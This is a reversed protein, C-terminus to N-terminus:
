SIHSGVCALDRDQPVQASVLDDRRLLERRAVEQLRVRGAGIEALGEGETRRGGVGVGVVGEDPVPDVGDLVRLQVRGEQALKDGGHSLDLRASLGAQLALRLALDSFGDPPCADTKKRTCPPEKVESIVEEPVSHADRHLVRFASVFYLM